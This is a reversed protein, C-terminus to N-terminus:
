SRVTSMFNVASFLWVWLVFCRGQNFHNLETGHLINHRTATVTSSNDMKYAALESFYPNLEHAIKAKHWLSKIENGKLGPVIKYVDVFKTDQQKLYGHQILVDTLVGELQAYLVPTCGAYLGLEYLKFAEEIVSKRLAKNEGVELAEFAEFFDAQFRQENIVNLLSFKKLDEVEHVDQWFYLLNLADNAVKAGLEQNLEDALVGFYSEQEALQHLTKQLYAHEDEAIDELYREAQKLINNELQKKANKNQPIRTVERGFEDEFDDDLTDNNFTNEHIM